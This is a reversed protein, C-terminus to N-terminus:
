RIGGTCTRAGSYTGPIDHVLHDVASVVGDGDTDNLMDRCEGPPATYRSISTGLNNRTRWSHTRGVSHDISLTPLRTVINYICGGKPKLTKQVASDLLIYRM